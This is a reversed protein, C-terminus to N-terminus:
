KVNKTQGPTWSYVDDTKGGKGGNAYPYPSVFGDKGGCWVIATARVDITQNGVSAGQIIGDGDLDLAYHLIHDQVTMSGSPGASVVDSLSASNGRRKLLATAWPSVVGFRDIGTLRGGSASLSLYKTTGSVFAYAADADLQGDSAGNKALRKPWVGEQQFMVTLATAVNSVLEQCKAREATRTMASFGGISAGVLVAIIGIVVLMEILTFGKKM